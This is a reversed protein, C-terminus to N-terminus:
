VSVNHGFGGPRNADARAREASFGVIQIGRDVTNRYIKEMDNLEPQSLNVAYLKPITALKEIYHDGRGCFHIGGGDFYELLARDYPLAFEEYAEPSLNMASDDRLLINGRHMVNAWHVSREPTKPILSFWANHFAIYTKTVLELLAKLGDPDDYILYFYDSGLLLECIDLPGQTDPHYVPVYKRIKPYRAFTECYFEAMEFVREGLGGRLDPVGGALLEELREVGMPRVTPLTNTHYPMEFAEAGFLSPMIGAGYNTRVGLVPHEQGLARLVTEMQSVLMAEYDKVADNIRINRFAYEPQATRKRTACFIEDTSRHSLFEDWQRLYDEETEEDITAEILELLRVTESSLQM